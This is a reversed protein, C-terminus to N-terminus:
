DASEIRIGRILAKGEPLALCVFSHSLVMKLKGADDAITNGKQDKIGAKKVPTLLPNFDATGNGCFIGVLTGSSSSDTDLEAALWNNLASAADRQLTNNNVQLRLQPNGALIEYDVTIRVRNKWLPWPTKKLYEQGEIYEYAPGDFFDFEGNKDNVPDADFASGTATAMGSGIILTGPGELVLGGREANALIPTEGSRVITDRIKGIFVNECAAMDTWGDERFSWKFFSYPIVVITCEAEAYVENLRNRALVSIITRGGNAGTVTIEPGSFGSMEVIGQGSSQWHIGGTVGAPSLLAGLVVSQGEWIEFGGRISHTDPIPERNQTIEVGEVPSTVVNNPPVPCAACLLAASVAAAGLMFVLITRM